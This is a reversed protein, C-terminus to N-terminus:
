WFSVKSDDIKQGDLDSARSQGGRKQPGATPILEQSFGLWIPAAHSADDEGESPTALPVGRPGPSSGPKQQRWGGHCIKSSLEWRCMETSQDGSWFFPFFVMLKSRSHASLFPHGQSDSGSIDSAELLFL